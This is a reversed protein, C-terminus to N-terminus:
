HGPRVVFPGGYKACFKRGERSRKRMEAHERLGSGTNRGSAAFTRGAAKLPRNKASDQRPRFPSSRFFVQINRERLRAQRVQLNALHLLASPVGSSTLAVM